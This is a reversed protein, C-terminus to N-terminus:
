LIFKNIYYISNMTTIVIQTESDKIKEVLSTITVKDKGDEIYHLYAPLNKMLMDTDYTIQRSWRFHHKPTENDKELIKTIFGKQIM